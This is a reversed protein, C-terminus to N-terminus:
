NDKFLKQHYLAVAQMIVGTKTMGTKEACEAIMDNEKQSLRLHLCLNRPNKTPRGMKPNDTKKIYPM